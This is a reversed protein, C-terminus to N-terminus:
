EKNELAYEVVEELSLQRGVAWASQWTHLDTQAQAATLYSEYETRRGPPLPTGFTGRQAEAAGWLHAARESQGQTTALCAMEELCALIYEKDGIERLLKLSEIDHQYAQALDGQRHAITGLSLLSYAIEAQGGLERRIALSELYLAHARTRDGASEATDGLNTLLLATLYKNGLERNLALSEEYYRRALANNGQRGSAAGLNNLALSVGRKDGMERRLHLVIELSQIAAEYDGQHMAVVGLNNTLSAIGDRDELEQFLRLSAQFHTTATEYDAQHWALVGAARLVRAQTRSSLTTPNSTGMVLAKDLWTRGESLRGEMHWFRWIGAGIRAATEADGQDLTWRLAERLNDHEARLQGLWAEQEADILHPEAAEALSLYYDAHQRRVAEEEGAGALKELAYEGILPHMDYRGFLTYRLLSKDVLSALIPANAGSVAQAALRRFGGQFVAMQRLAIQEEPLLLRWSHDFVTALSRHREPVDRLTTTLFGVSQEIEAAIEDPSLVRVWAAALEIALPMGAVLQCIRVVAAQNSPSLIFSHQVRQASQVFLQVADNDEVRADDKELASPTKESPAKTSPLSFGKVTFLWESQLNLRERSTTLLTVEPAKQQVAALLTTASSSALLHEFNDLVLLMEKGHLYTLLQKAPDATLELGLAAVITGALLDASSLVALPVFFVGDAFTDLQEAAAQMALRTKGVGGPGTLTLLRCDTETLLRGIEMLEAERGVFPTPQLPLTHPRAAPLTLRQQAVPADETADRIQEYLATTEAEPEVGLEEALLRRCTEYQALAASREGNLLHLRIAQRHSEERWPELELQRRTAQLAQEYQGRREYYTALKGMASLIFQNLWERKITAWEEFTISDPLSFQALFPGRYLDAAQQRWRACSRCSATNRHPHHECTALLDIIAQIDLWYNSKPNFQVATRNAFLYPPDAKRDAIAERLNALAQRLNNRAASEPLDPWLMAMLTERRHPRDAEAALYALLARAKDYKFVVPEGDLTVQWPGLLSLSLHLM